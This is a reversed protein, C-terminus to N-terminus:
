IDFTDSDGGGTSGHDSGGGGFFSGVVNRAVSTGVGWAFGEAMAGGLGSMMGGSQQQPQPQAIATPGAPKPAGLATTENTLTNWFYIQGSAKDTVEVWADKPDVPVPAPPPAKYGEEGDDRPTKSGPSRRKPIRSFAASQVYVTPNKLMVNSVRLLGQSRVVIAHIKNM